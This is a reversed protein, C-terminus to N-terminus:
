HGKLTARDSLAQEVVERTPGGIWSSAGDAIGLNVERPTINIANKGHRGILALKSTLPAFVVAGPDRLAAPPTQGEYGDVLWSVGRDSTIFFAGDPPQLRIWSLRPFHRVQFYWAQWHLLELHDDRRLIFRWGQRRRAEVDAGTVQHRVGTEPDEMLMPRERLVATEYGEPPPEVVDSESIDPHDRIWREIFEMWGPTRAAQRSLFRWIEPAVGEGQGIPSAALQRIAKAAASEVKALHREISADPEIFGGQGDYLGREISINKPSRRTIEGTRLSGVWLFPDRNAASEPVVFGNLYFKPVTHARTGSHEGPTSM